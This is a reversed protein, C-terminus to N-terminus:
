CFRKGEFIQKPAKAEPAELLSKGKFSNRQQKQQKERRQKAERQKKELLNKDWYWMKHPDRPFIRVVDNGMKGRRPASKTDSDRLAQREFKLVVRPSPPMQTPLREPKRLIADQVPIEDESDSTEYLHKFFDKKAQSAM